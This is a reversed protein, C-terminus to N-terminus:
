LQIHQKHASQKITWVKSSASLHIYQSCYWLLLKSFLFGTEWITSIEARRTTTECALLQDWAIHRPVEQSLAAHRNCPVGHLVLMDLLDNWKAM